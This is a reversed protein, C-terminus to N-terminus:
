NPKKKGFLGGLPNSKGTPILSKLKGGAVASMDPTFTPNSATGGIAVPIGGAGLGVVKTVVAGAGPLNALMKFNLEQNPSITGAGTVTGLSPVVVDIKDLRTGDPANRVDSSLNEIATDNGSQKGSLGPIASLKSRLSFGELATNSM